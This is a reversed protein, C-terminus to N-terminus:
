QVAKNAERWFKLTLNLVTLARGLDGQVRKIPEMCKDEAEKHKAEFPKTSPQM